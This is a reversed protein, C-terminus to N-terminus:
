TSLESTLFTVRDCPLEASGALFLALHRRLLSDLFKEGLRIEVLTPLPSLSTIRQNQRHPALPTLLCCNQANACTRRRICAGAM